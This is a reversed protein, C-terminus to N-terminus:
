VLLIFSCFIVIIMKATRVTKATRHYECRISTAFIQVLTDPWFMDSWSTQWSHVQGRPLAIKPMPLTAHGSPACGTHEVICYFEAKSCHRWSLFLPRSKLLEDWFVRQRM